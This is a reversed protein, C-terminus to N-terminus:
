VRVREERLLRRDADTLDGGRELLSILILLLTSSLPRFTPLVLSSVTLLSSLLPSTLTCDESRHRATSTRCHRQDGRCGDIRLLCEDDFPM